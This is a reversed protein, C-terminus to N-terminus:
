STKTGLSSGCQVCVYDYLAGSSLVLLMKERVPMARKCSPCYLEAASFEKFSSDASEAQRRRLAEALMQKKLQFSDM